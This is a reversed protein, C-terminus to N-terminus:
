VWPLMGKEFAEELRQLDRITDVPQWFGTHKYVGLEGAEAIRPLTDIEFSAHDTGLYDFVKPSLVFFGGNVWAGEGDPKELFSSVQSGKLNLAGFRAPPQVATLTALNGSLKHAALLERINVDSVGDGYTLLFEEDILNKLRAIRGGTNTDVGTDLVTVKWPLSRVEHIEREPTSLDFTIDAQNLWYNGFYERIQQGKYGALIIFESIGYHAYNQMIHWILPKGHAEVLPKPKVLTEESLRTGRGGALIVAKM